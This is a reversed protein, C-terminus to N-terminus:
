GQETSRLAARSRRVVEIRLLSCVLLVIGASGIADVVTQSLWHFLESLVGLALGFAPLAWATTSQWRRASRSSAGHRSLAPEVARTLFANPQTASAKTGLLAAYTRATRQAYDGNHTQRRRRRESVNEPVTSSLTVAEAVADDVEADWLPTELKGAVKGITGGVGKWMLGFAALVSAAGAAIAGGDNPSLAFAIIGAVFLGVVLAVLAPLRGLTDVASARLNAGLREAADLYNEPELLDTAKKEGTLLVRWLERQSSLLSAHDHPATLQEWRRMSIAVGRAAHPPLVTSLDDLATLMQAFPSQKLPTLSDNALASLQRGLGYAKAFRIDEGLLTAALNRQWAEAEPMAPAGCALQDVVIKPDLGKLRLRGLISVLRRAQAEYGTTAPSM